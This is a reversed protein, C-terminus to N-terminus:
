VISLLQPCDDHSAKGNQMACIWHKVIKVVKPCADHSTKAWGTLAIM